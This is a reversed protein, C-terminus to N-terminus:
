AYVNNVSKLEDIFIRTQQFSFKSQEIEKRYRHEDKPKIYSLSKEQRFISDKFKEEIKQIFTSIKKAFSDGSTNLFLAFNKLIEEGPDVFALDKIFFDGHAKYFDFLMAFIKQLMEKSKPSTERKTVFASLDQIQFFKKLAKDNEM